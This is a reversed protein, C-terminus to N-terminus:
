GVDVSGGGLGWLHVTTYLRSFVVNPTALVLDHEQYLVGPSVATQVHVVLSVEDLGDYVGPLHVVPVDPNTNDGVVVSHLLHDVYVVVATVGCLQLVLDCGQGPSQLGTSLVVQGVGQVVDPSGGERVGTGTYLLNHHWNDVHHWVSGFVVDNWSGLPELVLTDGDNTHSHSAASVDEPTRCSHATQVVCHQSLCDCLGRGVVVSLVAVESCQLGSCLSVPVVDVTAATASLSMSSIDGQLYLCLHSTKKSISVYILHRRLSLSM